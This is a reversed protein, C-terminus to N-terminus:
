RYRLRFTRIFWGPGALGVPLLYRLGLVDCTVHRVRIPDGAILSGLPDFPAEDYTVSASAERVTKKEEVVRMLWTPSMLHLSGMGGICFMKRDFVPESPAEAGLTADLSLIRRGKREVRATVRDGERTFEVLGGKKPLGVFDRGYVIATDDTVIMWCPHVGEGVLTKVHLLLAALRYPETYSPRDYRALVLTGLPESGLKMWPPVLEAARPHLPVDALVFEAGEYTRDPFAARLDGFSSIFDIM